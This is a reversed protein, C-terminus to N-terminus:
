SLRKSLPIVEGGRRIPRWEGCWGRAYKYHVKPYRLCSGNPETDKDRSLVSLPKAIYFMCSECYQPHETDLWPPTPEPSWAGMMRGVEELQDALGRVAKHAHEVEITGDDQPVGPAPEYDHIHPPVWGPPYNATHTESSGTRSRPVQFGGCRSCRYSEPDPQYLRWVHECM